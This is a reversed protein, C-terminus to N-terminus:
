KPISESLESIKKASDDITEVPAAATPAPSFSKPKEGAKPLVVASKKKSGFELWAFAGLTAVSLLMGIINKNM